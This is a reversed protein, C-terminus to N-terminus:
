PMEGDVAQEEGPAVRQWLGMMAQERQLETTAKVFREDWGERLLVTYDSVRRHMCHFVDACGKRSAVTGISMWENWMVGTVRYVWWQVGYDVTLADGARIARVQVLKGNNQLKLNCLPMPLHNIKGIWLREADLRQKGGNWELSYERTPTSDDDNQPQQEGMAALKQAEAFVTLDAVVTDNSARRDLPIDHTARVGKGLQEDDYVEVLGRQMWDQAPELSAKFTAMARDIIPRHTKGLYRRWESWGIDALFIPEQLWAAIDIVGSAIKPCRQQVFHYFAPCATIDATSKLGLVTRAARVYNRKSTQKLKAALAGKLYHGFMRTATSTSILRDLKVSYQQFALTNDDASRAGLIDRGLQLVVSASTSELEVNNTRRAYAEQLKMVLTGVDGDEEESAASHLIKRQKRPQHPPSSSLSLSFVGDREEASDSDSSQDTTDETRKRRGAGEQAPVRSGDRRAPAAPQYTLRVTQQQQRGSRRINDAAPSVSSASASGGPLAADQESRNVPVDEPLSCAEADTGDEVDMAEVAEEAQSAVADDVSSLTAVSDDAQVTLRFVTTEGTGEVNITLCVVSNSPTTTICARIRALLEEVRLLNKSM